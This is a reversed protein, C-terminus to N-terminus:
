KVGLSALVEARKAQANAKVATYLSQGHSDMAVLLPGFNRIRFRWLSEPNLDDMDVDENSEICTTDLAATGGNIAL